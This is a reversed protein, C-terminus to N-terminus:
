ESGSEDEQLNDDGEAEDTEESEPNYDLIEDAKDIWAAEEYSLLRVFDDDGVWGSDKVAQLAELGAIEDEIHVLLIEAAKFNIRGLSDVDLGEKEVDDDGALASLAKRYENVAEGYRRQGSLVDGSLEYSDVDDPHAALQKELWGLANESNGLEAELFAIEFYVTKEDPYYEVLQLLRELAASYEEQESLIMASNYLSNRSGSSYGLIEEYLALAAENDDQLHYVWAKTEAALRNGSDNALLEDLLKHSEDYKKMHIYVRALNYGASFLEPELERARSYAKVADQHRELETYANGLNYWVEAAESVTVAATTGCSLFVVPLLMLLVFKYWKKCRVTNYIV